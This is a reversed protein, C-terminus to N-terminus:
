ARAGCELDEFGGIVGKVDELAGALGVSGYHLFERLGGCRPGFVNLGCWGHGLEGELFSQNFDPPLGEDFVGLEKDKACLAVGDLASGLAAKTLHIERKIAIRKAAKLLVGFGFGPPRLQGPGAFLNHLEEAGATVDSVNHIAFDMEVASRVRFQLQTLLEDGAKPGRSVAPREGIGKGGWILYFKSIRKGDRVDFARSVIGDRPECFVADRM